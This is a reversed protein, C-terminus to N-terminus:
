NCIKNFSILRHPPILIPYPTYLSFSLPYLIFGSFRLRQGLWIFCRDSKGTELFQNLVTDM